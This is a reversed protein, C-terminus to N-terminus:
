MGQYSQPSLFFYVLCCGYNETETSVIQFVVIHVFVSWSSSFFINRETGVFITVRGLGTIIKKRM